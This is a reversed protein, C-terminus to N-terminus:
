YPELRITDSHSVVFFEAKVGAPVHLSLVYMGKHEWNARNSHFIPLLKQIDCPALKLGSVTRNSDVMPILPNPAKSPAYKMSLAVWMTELSPPYVVDRSSLRPAFSPLFFDLLVSLITWSERRFYLPPPTIASRPLTRRIPYTEAKSATFLSARTVKGSLSPSTEPHSWSRTRFVFFFPSSTFRSTPSCTAQRIIPLPM